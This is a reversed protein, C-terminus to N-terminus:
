SAVHKVIAYMAVCGESLQQALRNKDLKRLAAILKKPTAVAATAGTLWRQLMEKSCDEVPRQTANAEIADLIGTDLGLKLGLDYWKPVVEKPILM